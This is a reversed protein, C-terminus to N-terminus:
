PKEALAAMLAPVLDRYDAVVAVNAMSFIPAEEDTNIAVINKSSDIGAVHQIAGSIGIALYLDPAVTTGTQGVQCTSPIWGEDVAARSAGVAADLQQALQRLLVFGDASGLGRGGSVVVSADELGPGAHQGNATVEVSSIGADAQTAQLDLTQDKGMVARRSPDMFSKSKVTVITLPRMSEVVELAKGGYVPRLFDIRGSAEREFGCCSSVYAAGLRAALRPAFQLGLVDGTALVLAPNVLACTQAAIEVLEDSFGSDSLPARLQYVHDTGAQAAAAEFGAGAGLVHIQAKGDQAAAHAANILEEM